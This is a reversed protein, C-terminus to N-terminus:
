LLYRDIKNVFYQVKMTGIFKWMFLNDMSDFLEELYRQTRTEIIIYKLDKPWKGLRKLYHNKFDLKMFNDGLIIFTGIPKNIKNSITNYFDIIDDDEQMYVVYENNSMDSINIKIASKIRGCGSCGGGGGGGSDGKKTTVAYQVKPSLNSKRILHLETNTNIRNIMSLPVDRTIIKEEFIIVSNAETYSPDKRKIGNWVSDFFDDVSSKTINDVVIDSGEAGILKLKM